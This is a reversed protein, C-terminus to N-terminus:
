HFYFYVHYFLYIPIAIYFSVCVWATWTQVKEGFSDYSSSYSYTIFASLIVVFISEFVAM